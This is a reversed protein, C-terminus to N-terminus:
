WRGTADKFQQQSIAIVNVSYTSHNGYPYNERLFDDITLDGKVWHNNPKSRLPTKVEVLSYEIEPM